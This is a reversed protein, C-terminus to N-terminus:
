LADKVSRIADETLRKLQGLGDKLVDDADGIKAGGIAIGTAAGLVISALVVGNWSGTRKMEGSRRDKAPTAIKPSKKYVFDRNKPM